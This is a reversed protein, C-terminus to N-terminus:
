FDGYDVQFCKLGLERWMSVVQDRDDFVGLVNCQDKIFEEYLERKVIADKRHDGTKRMLLLDCPIKNAVLWARTQGKSDDERGSVVIIWHGVKALTAALYGVNADCTDEGVRSYDYPDRKSTNHALTGDVDFIYADPLAPDTVPPTYVPELYKRYMSQIVKAGVPAPRAADRAICERVSVDFFKVEFTAGCETAIQRLSAEHVPNLNTDDVIVSHGAGLAENVIADRMDCVFREHAPSWTGGDLMARLDDKNLRKFDPNGKLFEKAFTTKGSGPLGKLFLVRPPTM